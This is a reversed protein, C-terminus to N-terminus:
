INRKNKKEKDYMFLYFTYPLFNGVMGKGLSLHLKRYGM